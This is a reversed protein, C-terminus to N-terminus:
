LQDEYSALQDRLGRKTQTTNTTFEQFERNRDEIKRVLNEREGALLDTDQSGAKRKMHEREFADLKRSLERKHDEQEQAISATDDLFKGMLNRKFGEIDFDGERDRRRSSASM